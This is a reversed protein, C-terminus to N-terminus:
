AGRSSLVSVTVPRDQSTAEDALAAGHRSSPRLPTGTRDRSRDEGGTTRADRNQALVTAPAALNACAWTFTRGAQCTVMEAPTDVTRCVAEAGPDALSQAVTM